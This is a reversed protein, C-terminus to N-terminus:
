INNKENKEQASNLSSYKGVLIAVIVAVYFQGTVAIFMSLSQSLPLQPTIDGYGATTLTILTYYVLEMDSKGAANYSGSVHLDCFAVLSIFMIGLLLYGNIAEVLSYINVNKRVLLDKIVSGVIFIIFLNTFLEALYHLYIFDTTRTAIEILIAGIGVLTAKPSISYAALFIIISFLIISIAPTPFEFVPLLFIFVLCSILLLVSSVTNDKLLAHARKLM